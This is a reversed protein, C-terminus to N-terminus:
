QSIARSADDLIIADNRSSAVPFKVDGRVKGCVAVKFCRITNELSNAAVNVTLAEFPERSPEYAFVRSAGEQAAYLSFFGVNAGLDVVTANAPIDGYERKAFIEYASAIDYADSSPNM